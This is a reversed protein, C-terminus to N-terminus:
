GEPVTIQFGIQSTRRAFDISMTRTEPWFDTFLEKVKDYWGIFAGSTIAGTSVTPELLWLDWM